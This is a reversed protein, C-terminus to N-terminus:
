RYNSLPKKPLLVNVQPECQQVEKAEEHDSDNGHEDEQHQTKHVPPLIGSARQEHADAQKTSAKKSRPRPQQAGSVPVAVYVPPLYIPFHGKGLGQKTLVDRDANKRAASPLVISQATFWAAVHDKYAKDVGATGTNDNTQSVKDGRAIYGQLCM